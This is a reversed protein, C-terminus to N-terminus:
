SITAPSVRRLNDVEFLVNFSNLFPMAVCKGNSLCLFGIDDLMTNVSEVWAREMCGDM